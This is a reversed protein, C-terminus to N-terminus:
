GESAGTAVAIGWEHGGGRMRWGGGGKAEGVDVSGMRVGNDAQWVNGTGWSQDRVPPDDAGDAATPPRRPTGAAAAPSHRRSARRRQTGYRAGAALSLLTFIVGLGTQWSPTGGLLAELRARASSLSDAWIREAM